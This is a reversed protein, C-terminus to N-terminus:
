IFYIFPGARVEPKQYSTYDEIFPNNKYAKYTTEFLLNAKHINIGKVFAHNYNTIFRDSITKIEFIFKDDLNSIDSDNSLKYIDLNYDSSGNNDDDSEQNLILQNKQSLAEKIDKVQVASYYSIKLSGEKNEQIKINSVGIKLLKEQVDLITKNIDKQNIEADIFELVIEQNPISIQEQFGGFYILILFLTSIYWKANM